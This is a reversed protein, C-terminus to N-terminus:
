IYRSNSLKTWIKLEANLVIIVKVNDGINKNVYKRM